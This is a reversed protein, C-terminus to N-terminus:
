RCTVQDEQAETEGDPPLTREQDPGSPAHGRAQPKSVSRKDVPQLLVVLDRLPDADRSTGQVHVVQVETLPVVRLRDVRGAEPLHTPRGLGGGRGM